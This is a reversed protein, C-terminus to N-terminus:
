WGALQTARWGTRGVHLRLRAQIYQETLRATDLDLGFHEATEILTHPQEDAHGERYALFQQHLPHLEARFRPRFQAPKM